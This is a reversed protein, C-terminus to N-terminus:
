SRIASETKTFSSIFDSSVQNPQGPISVGASLVLRIAEEVTMTLPIADKRPVAVVFGTTPNPATCVFVMVTPEGAVNDLEGGSSSTVFGVTWLGKSPYQIAM